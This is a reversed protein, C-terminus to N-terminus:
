NLISLTSRQLYQMIGNEININPSWGTKATTEAVPACAHMIDRERYQRAGWEINCKKGTIREIISTLERITISKGTGVHFTSGNILKSYNDICLVLFSVIDNVHVFDLTQYGPSMGIPKKSNQSEIIYDIIRKVTMDGGYVSYLVATIYKFNNKDSYYELFPEFAAKSAAYLYAYNRTDPGKRYEAFSGINLFLKLSSTQSLVNLLKVGYTINSDILSDIIDFEDQSSNLAALHIVFDPSCRKISEWDDSKLLTVNGYENPLFMETAKIRNRYLAYVQSNKHQSLAKVLPKGIFGTAGTVLIKM